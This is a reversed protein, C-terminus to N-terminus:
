SHRSTNHACSVRSRNAIALNKNPTQISLSLDLKALNRCYIGKPQIFNCNSNCQKNVYNDKNDEQTYHTLAPKHSM